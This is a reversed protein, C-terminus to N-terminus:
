TCISSFHPYFYVSNDQNELDLWLFQKINAKFSNIESIEQLNTTLKNWKRIGTYMFSNQGSSNVRPVFYSLSGSRTNHGSSDLLTM